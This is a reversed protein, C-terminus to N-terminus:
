RSAGSRGNQDGIFIVRSRTSYPLYRRNEDPAGIPPLYIVKPKWTEIYMDGIKRGVTYGYEDERIVM